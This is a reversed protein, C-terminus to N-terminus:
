FLLLQHESHLKLATECPIVIDSVSIAPWNTQLCPLYAHYYANESKSTQTGTIPNQIDKTGDAYEGIPKRLDWVSLYIEM